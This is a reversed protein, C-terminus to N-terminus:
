IPIICSYRLGLEFESSSSQTLTVTNKCLVLKFAIIYFGRIAVFFLQFESRFSVPQPKNGLVPNAIHSPITPAITSVLQKVEGKHDGTLINDQQQKTTSMAAALQLIEYESPIM